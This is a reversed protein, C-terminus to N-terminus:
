PQRSPSTRHADAKKTALGAELETMTTVFEKELDLGYLKSLVLVSWLCDSLEHALKRDVDEVERLGSKAMVLKMLDGVDVVFGQMVEEKSWPRRLRAQELEAFRARIEMARSTLDRIDMTATRRPPAANDPM